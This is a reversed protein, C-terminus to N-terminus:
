LHDSKHTLCKREIDSGGTGFLNIGGGIQVGPQEVIIVPCKVDIEDLLETWLNCLLRGTVLREYEWLCCQQELVTEKSFDDPILDAQCEQQPKASSRRESEKKEQGRKRQKEPRESVNWIHTLRTKNCNSEVKPRLHYHGSSNLLVTPQVWKKKVWKM